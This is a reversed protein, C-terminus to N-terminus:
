LRLQVFYLLDTNSSIFFLCLLFKMNSITGVNTKTTGRSFGIYSYIINTNEFIISNYYKVFVNCLRFYTNKFVFISCLEKIIDSISQRRCKEDIRCASESSVKGKIEKTNEMGEANWDVCYLIM